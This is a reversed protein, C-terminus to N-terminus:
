TSQSLCRWKSSQQEEEGLFALGREVAGLGLLAELTGKSQKGNLAPEGPPEQRHVASAHVLLAKNLPLHAMGLLAEEAVLRSALNRASEGSVQVFDWALALEVFFAVSAPLLSFLHHQIPFFYFLFYFLFVFFSYFYFNLLVWSTGGEEEEEEGRDKKSEGRSVKEEEKVM